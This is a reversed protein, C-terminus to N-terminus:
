TPLFVKVLIWNIFSFHEQRWLTKSSFEFYYIMCFTMSQGDLRYSTTRTKNQCNKPTVHIDLELRFHLIREIYCDLWWFLDIKEREGSFHVGGATVSYDYFPVPSRWIRDEAVRHSVVSFAVLHTQMSYINFSWMVILSFQSALSMPMEFIETWESM